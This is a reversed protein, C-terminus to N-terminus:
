KLPVPSAIEEGRPDEICTHFPGQEPRFDPFANKLNGNAQLSVPEKVKEGDSSEIVWMYRASTDPQGKTFRYDVSFMMMTTGALSQPLATGASLTVAAAAPKPKDPATAKKEGAPKRDAKPSTEKPEAEAPEEESPKAAPSDKTAESPSKPKVSKKVEPEADEGAEADASEEDEAEESADEDDVASATATGEDGAPEPSPDGVGIIATVIMAILMLGVAGGGIWMAVVVGKSFGEDAQGHGAYGPAIIQGAANTALAASQEFGAANDLGGLPDDAAGLPDDLGALPDMPAAAPELDASSNGSADAQPIQLPKSCSPCAVRKGLLDDRAKFSQGCECTVIVPM